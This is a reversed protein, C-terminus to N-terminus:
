DKRYYDSSFGDATLLLDPAWDVSHDIGNSMLAEMEQLCAASPCEAIIEDHVHMVVPWREQVRYLAAALCDRATAQTANEVLKGGYTSIREWKHKSQNMGMYTLQGNDDLMPDFYALQRGSPITMFLWPPRYSFSIGRGTTQDRCTKMCEVAAEEVLHWLTVIKPSAKRWKLIISSMEEETLGMKDAGFKKLAGVGGQYGCALEAVKGKKRLHANQGHKEVPVGFMMTASECYIDRGKRFAEMRWKEGAIWAIIRAEIASYDAICLTKGEPAIVLTRILTSMVGTVSEYLMECDALHGSKVLDRAVDVDDFENRTFNQPQILRGSWRATRGAGYFQFAGHIRGDSCVCRQFARYKSISSKGAEARIELVRHVDEPFDDRALLEELAEKNLSTVPEGTRDSLWAKIAAVKSPELGCIEQCERALSQQYQDNYDLVKGILDTDVLIGHDNIRQDMAYYSQEMDSLPKFSLEDHIAMETVVDQRNYEIFRQWKDPADQPRNRTRGGNVKTPKCPRCFYTVLAKGDKLKAKDEGFGLANGIDRLSAPLGLSLAQVMTCEWQEPPLFRFEPPEDRFGSMVHWSHRMRYLWHSLCVREFAANHAVKIIAPDELASVLEQPLDMRTLDLVQVPEGNFSFAFLLVEFDRSEAYRYVGAKALDESSWTEIDIFLRSSAKSNKMPCRQCNM